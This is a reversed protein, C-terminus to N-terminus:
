GEIYDLKKLEAIRKDIDREAQKKRTLREVCGPNCCSKKDTCQTCDPIFVDSM